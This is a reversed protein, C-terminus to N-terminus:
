SKAEPYRMEILKEVYDIVKRLDKVGEGGDQRYRCIYKIINGEIFTLGNRESFEVPQIAFGKYHNGGVQRDLASQPEKLEPELVGGINQLLEITKDADDKWKGTALVKDRISSDIPFTSATPKPQNMEIWERWADAQTKHKSTEACVGTGCTVWWSKCAANSSLMPGEFGCKVCVVNHGLGWTRVDEDTQANAAARLRKAQLENWEKIAVERSANECSLNCVPCAIWYLQGREPHTVPGSSVGGCCTCEVPKIADERRLEHLMAVLDSEYCWPSEPFPLYHNTSLLRESFLRNVGLFMLVGVTTPKEGPEHWIDKM